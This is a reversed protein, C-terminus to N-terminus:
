RRQRPPQVFVATTFPPIELGGSAVQAQRNVADSSRQLAPHPPYGSAGLLHRREDSADM